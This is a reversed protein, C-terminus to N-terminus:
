SDLFAIAGTSNGRPVGGQSLSPKALSVILHKQPNVYSLIRSPHGAASRGAFPEVDSRAIARASNGRPVGGQSLNPKVLSVIANKHPIVYSLLRSTHGATGRGAFPEVHSLVIAGASNGRLVGGQLLSPKALSVIANNHLGVYSSLMSPHGAAGRGAFPQAESLM